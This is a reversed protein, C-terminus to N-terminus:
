NRLAKGLGPIAQGVTWKSGQLTFADSGFTAGDLTKSGTQCSGYLIPCTDLEYNTGFFVTAGILANLPSLDSVKTETIDLQMLAKMNEIGKLDQLPNGRLSLKNLAPLATGSGRTQIRGGDLVASGESSLM